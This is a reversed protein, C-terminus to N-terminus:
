RNQILFRGAIELKQNLVSRGASPVSIDYVVLLVIGIRGGTPLWVADMSWRGDDIRCGDLPGVFMPGADSQAVVDDVLQVDPREALRACEVLNNRMEALKGLQTDGRDLQHRHSLKGALAVPAVVAGVGEGGLVGVAPRCPQATQDVGRVSGSYRDNEVNDVVM